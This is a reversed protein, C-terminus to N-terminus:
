GPDEGQKGADETEADPEVKRSPNILLRAREAAIALWKAARARRAACGTCAM